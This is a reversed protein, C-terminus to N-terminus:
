AKLQSDLDGAYNSGVTAAQLGMAHCITTLLQNNPVANALSLVQGQKFFGGCSGIMFYPISKVWHNAGENMDNCVLICTNDLVSGSGEPASALDKVLGALREFFWTDIKIKNPYDASGLHAIAHYDPSSVNLWPFTLSNGGGDDILDITICRALDCKAAAGAVGFVADVLAPYNTNSTLSSPKSGLAPQACGTGVSGTGGTMGGAGGTPMNAASLKGELERIAELHHQVKQRDDTGLKGSFRQLDQAVFDLVSARRARLAEASTGGPMTSPPTPTTGPTTPVGAFLTSAIKWPDTIATNKTNASKWSTSSSYPRAGLNLQPSKHAGKSILEAAILTDISPGNAVLGDKWTGTLLAPYSQHGNFEQGADVMVKIDFPSASKTGHRCMLIKSKYAELPALLAPLAGTLPGAPPYFSGPVIGNTWTVTILRKPFAANQGSAFDAELLPLFGVGLGAAQLLTRRSFRSNNM